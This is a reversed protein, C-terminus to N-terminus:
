SIREFVTGVTECAPCADPEAGYAYGCGPCIYYEYTKAQDAMSALRRRYLRMRATEIAVMARFFKGPQALGSEEAQKSLELYHNLRAQADEDLAMVLADVTTSTHIERGVLKLWAASITLFFPGPTESPFGTPYQEKDLM